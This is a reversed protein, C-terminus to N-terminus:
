GMSRRMEGQSRNLHVRGALADLQPQLPGSVAPLPNASWRRQVRLLRLLAPAHGLLAGAEPLNGAHKFARGHGHALDQALIRLASSGELHPGEPDRMSDPCVPLTM